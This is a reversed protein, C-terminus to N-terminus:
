NCKDSQSWVRQMQRLLVVTLYILKKYPRILKCSCYLRLVCWEGLFLSVPVTGPWGITSSGARLNWYRRAAVPLLGRTRWRSTKNTSKGWLNTSYRRTQSGECTWCTKNTQSGECSPLRQQYSKGWLNTPRTPRVDRVSKCTRRFCHCYLEDWYIEFKAILLLILLCWLFILLHSLSSNQYSREKSRTWSYWCRITVM